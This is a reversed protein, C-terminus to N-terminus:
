TVSQLGRPGKGRVWHLRRASSLEILYAQKTIMLASAVAVSGVFYWAVRSPEPETGIWWPNVGEPLLWSVLFAVALATASNSSYSHNWLRTGVSAILVTLALLVLAETVLRSFYISPLRSAALFLVLSLAWVVFVPLMRALLRFRPGVALAAGAEGDDSELAMIVGICLAVLGFRLPAHQTIFGPTRGAAMTAFLMAALISFMMSRWDGARSEVRVVQFFSLRM